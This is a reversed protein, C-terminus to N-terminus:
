TAHPPPRDRAPDAARVPDRARWVDWVHEGVLDDALTIGARKMALKIQGHHYGDHFILFQVLQVPHLFARDLPRGAAIRARVAADVCACSETLAAALTEVDHDTAWEAAPVPRAEEPVNEAVSVLREHHMHACLQGITPSDPTARAELAGRPLLRLLNVLAVNSRAWADLVADLVTHDLTPTM